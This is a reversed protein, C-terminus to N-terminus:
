VGSALSVRSALQPVRSSVSQVGVKVQPRVEQQRSSRSRGAGLVVVVLARASLVQLKGLRRSVSVVEVAVVAGPGLRVSRRLSLRLM